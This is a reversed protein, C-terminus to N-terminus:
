ITMTFYHKGGMKVTIQIIKEVNNMYFKCRRLDNVSKDHKEYVLDKRHMKHWNYESM